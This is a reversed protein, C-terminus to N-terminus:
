LTTHKTKKNQQYQNYQQNRKEEEGERSLFFRQAFPKPLRRPRNFAHLFFSYFVLKVVALRTCGSLFFLDSRKYPNKKRQARFLFFTVSMLLLNQCFFLVHIGSWGFLVYDNFCLIVICTAGRLRWGDLLFFVKRVDPLFFLLVGGFVFRGFVYVM